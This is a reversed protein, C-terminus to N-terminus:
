HSQPINPNVQIWNAPIIHEPYEKAIKFGLWYQPCIILKNKKQNLYAAWWSFSSNSTICIDANMLVQFDVIMEDSIFDANKVQGFNTKVFEIDDSVFIIKYTHSNKIQALSDLYYNVPLTLNNSGLNQLWWDNLNLYDGRRVHIAIIKNGAFVDGYKANFQARYRQKLNIYAPLNGAINEFYGASQFYGSYIENDALKALEASSNVGVSQLSKTLGAKKLKFYARYVLNKLPNYGDLIFYDAAVFKEFKDNIFFLTGLKKSLSKIFAYQFLQNGLRCEISVGVM